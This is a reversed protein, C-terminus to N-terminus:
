GHSGFSVAGGGWGVVGKPVREGCRSRATFGAVIVDTRKCMKHVRPANASAPMIAAAAPTM